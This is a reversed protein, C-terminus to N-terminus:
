ENIQPILAMVKDIESLNGYDRAAAGSAIKSRLETDRVLTLIADALGRAGAPAVFGDVGHDVQSRVTPYESVLVPKGLMQAERISVSKGEYRSPQVYIDCAHMSPYPNELPGVVIVHSALGFEDIRRRLAPEDPGYGVFSWRFVLGASKMIAAAEVAIDFGKAHSFRGVSCLTLTEASSATASAPSPDLAKQRVWAPDLVNEIVTLRPALRPFVKVFAAAVESSVAVIIDMSAWAKEEFALAVGEHVSTYDTHIWGVKKRSCVKSAVFDHPMMYSIALDYEGKVRPIFPMSYRHSRALLFGVPLGMAKRARLVMLSTVRALGILIGGPKFASRISGMLYSHSKPVPLITVWEPIQPLLDGSKSLLLLHVDVKKPNMCRLMGILSREVGGLHLAHTFILIKARRNLTEDTRM